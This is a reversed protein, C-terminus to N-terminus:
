QGDSIELRGIESYYQSRRDAKLKDTKLADLKELAALVQLSSEDDRKRLLPIQRRLSAREDAIWQSLKFEAPADVAEPAKFPSDRKELVVGM